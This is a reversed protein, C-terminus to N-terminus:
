EERQRFRATQHGMARVARRWKDLLHVVGDGLPRVTLVSKRPRKFVEDYEGLWASCAIPGRPLSLFQTGGNVM